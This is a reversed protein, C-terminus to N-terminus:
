RPEPFAPDGKPAGTAGIIILQEASLARDYIKVEDIIGNFAATGHNHKGILLDVKEAAPVQGRVGLQGTLQGNVYLRIGSGSRYMAALHLWRSRPLAIDSNCVQWEGGVSVHLGFFGSENIGFFFGGDPAHHQNVIPTWAGPYERVAVWAEVAFDPTLLPADAAARTVWTDRGDFFLGSGTSGAIWVPNRV